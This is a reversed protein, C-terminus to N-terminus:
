LTTKYLLLPMSLFHQTWSGERQRGYAAVLGASRPLPRTMGGPQDLGPNVTGFESSLPGMPFHFIHIVKLSPKM